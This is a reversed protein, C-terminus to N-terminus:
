AQLVLCQEIQLKYRKYSGETILSSIQTFWFFTEPAVFSRYRSTM